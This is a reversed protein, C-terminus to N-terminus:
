TKLFTADPFPRMKIQTIIPQISGGVYLDNNLISTGTLQSASLSAVTFTDSIAEDLLTVKVNDIYHM